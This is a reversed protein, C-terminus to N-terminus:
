YSLLILGDKNIKNNMTPLLDPNFPGTIIHWGNKTPYQQVILPNLGKDALETLALEHEQQNDCDIIFYSTERNSPKSFASVFRNKMDKYFAHKNEEDYYDAELQLEKFTRIAKEFNRSNVQSYIRLQDKSNDKLYLLKYLYEVFEKENSSIYKKLHSNNAKEAGEKARHILLLTRYGGTFMSFEDAIQIAKKMLDEVIAKDNKIRAM